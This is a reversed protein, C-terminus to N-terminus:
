LLWLKEGLAVVQGRGRGRHPVLLPVAVGHADGTGRRRQQARGRLLGRRAAPDAGPGGANGVTLGHSTPLTWHITNLDPPASSHNTLWTLYPSGIYSIIVNNVTVPESRMSYGRSIIIIFIHKM